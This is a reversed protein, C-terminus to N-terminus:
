NTISHEMKRGFRYAIFLTFVYYQAESFAMLPMQKYFLDFALGMELTNVGRYKKNIDFSFAFKAGGGLVAQMEDFGKFFSTGGYIQGSNYIKDSDFLETVIYTNGEEDLKVVDFYVPKLLGLSLGLTYYYNIALGEQAYKGYIEKQRGMGLRWLMLQNLKGYVFKSQSGYRSVIRQEKPHRVWSFDIDILRSRYGDLRKSFRFGMAYGNSNLMLVLSRSDRNYDVDQILSSQAFSFSSSVLSICLVLAVILFNNSKQHLFQIRNQRGISFM